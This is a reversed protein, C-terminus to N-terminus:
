GLISNRTETVKTLLANVQETTLKDATPVNVYLEKIVNLHAAISALEGNKDFENLLSLISELHTKNEWVKVFLAENEQTRKVDKLQSLLLYNSEIFNGVLMSTALELREDNKLYNDTATYAKDLIAMMSDKNGLSKEFNTKSIADFGQSANLAVALARSAAFYTIVQQNQKYAILYGLDVSYIGYGIAKQSTTTFKEAKDLPATLKDKFKSVNKELDVAFQLPNPLNAIISQFKFTAKEDMASSDSIAVVSDNVTQTEKEKNGSCAALLITTGLVAVSLRKMKYYKLYNEKM